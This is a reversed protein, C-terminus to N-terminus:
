VRVRPGFGVAFVKVAFIVFHICIHVDGHILRTVTPNDRFAMRRHLRSIPYLCIPYQCMTKFILYYQQVSSLLHIFLELYPSSVAGSRRPEQLQVQNVFDQGKESLLFHCRNSNLFYAKLINFSLNLFIVFPDIASHVIINIHTYIYVPTCMM